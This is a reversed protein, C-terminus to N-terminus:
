VTMFTAYELMHTLQDKYPVTGPITVIKETEDPLEFEQVRKELSSHLFGEHPAIQISEGIKKPTQLRQEAIAAPTDVRIGIAESNLKGALTRLHEREARTNINADYIVSTNDRLYNTALWDMEQLIYQRESDSFTPIQYIQIGIKDAHLHIAKIAQSFQLAFTTKGSGPYGIMYFLLPKKDTIM